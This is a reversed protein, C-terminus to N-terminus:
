AEARFHPISGPLFPRPWSQGKAPHNRRCTPAPCPRPRSGATCLGRALRPEAGRGRGRATARGQGERGLGGRVGPCDTGRPSM